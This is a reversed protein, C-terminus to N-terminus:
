SWLPIQRVGEADPQAWPGWNSKVSHKYWLVVIAELPSPGRASLAYGKNDCTESRGTITAICAAHEYDAALSFKYGDELVTELFKEIDVQGPSMFGALDARDSDSLAIDVFGLFDPSYRKGTGSRAKGHKANSSTGSM